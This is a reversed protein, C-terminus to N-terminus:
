SSINLPGTVQGHAVSECLRWLVSGCLTQLFCFTEVSVAIPQITDRPTLVPSQNTTEHRRGGRVFGRREM